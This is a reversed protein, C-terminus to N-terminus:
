PFCLDKFVYNVEITKVKTETRKVNDTGHIDKKYIQRAKSM